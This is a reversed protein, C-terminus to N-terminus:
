GCSTDNEVNGVRKEFSAFLKQSLLIMGAVM